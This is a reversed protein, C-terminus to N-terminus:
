VAAMLDRGGAARTRISQLLDSMMAPKHHVIVPGLKAVRAVAEEDACGTLLVIPLDPGCLEQLRRAAEVGDLNGKLRIDVIVADPSAGARCAQEPEGLAEAASACQAVVTWGEGEIQRALDLAGTV